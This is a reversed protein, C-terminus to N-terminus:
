VGDGAGGRIGVSSLLPMVARLLAATILGMVIGAAVLAPAYYFLQPLGLLFFAVALQGLNHAVAGAIGAMGYSLKKGRVALLVLMVVVSLMGGSLSLVGATFGRIILAFLAKLLALGFAQRAGLVFVCYMTVINSLGPKIGPVPIFAPLMGELASLAIALAFLLGMVAVNKASAGTKTKGSSM